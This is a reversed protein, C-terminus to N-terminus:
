IPTLTISYHLFEQLLKKIIPNAYKTIAYPNQVPDFPAQIMVKINHPKAIITPIADITTPCTLENNRIMILPITNVIKVRWIDFLIKSSLHM